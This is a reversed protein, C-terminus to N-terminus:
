VIFVYIISFCKSNICKNSFKGEINKHQQVADSIICKWGQGLTENLSGPPCDSFGPLM